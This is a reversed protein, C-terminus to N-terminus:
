ASGRGESRLARSLALYAEPPALFHLVRWLYGQRHKEDTQYPGFNPFNGYM